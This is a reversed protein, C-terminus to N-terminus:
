PEAVTPIWAGPRRKGLGAFEEVGRQPRDPEATQRCCQAPHLNSSFELMRTVPPVPEKPWVNTGIVSAFYLGLRMMTNERSSIFCHSIALFNSPSSRTRKKM